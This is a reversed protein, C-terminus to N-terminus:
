EMRLLVLSTREILILQQSLMQRWDGRRRKQRMFHRRLGRCRASRRRGGALSRTCRVKSSQRERIESDNWCCPFPASRLCCIASMDRQWRATEEDPHKTMRAIEERARVARDDFAVVGFLADLRALANSHGLMPILATLAEDTQIYQLCRIADVVHTDDRLLKRLTPVATAGNTGIVYFGTLAHSHLRNVRRLDIVLAKPTEPLLREVVKNWRPAIRERWGPEARLKSLLVPVAAAGIEKIAQEAPGEVSFDTRLDSIELWHSLSHGHAFPERPGRFAVTAFVVVVIGLVLLKLFRHKSRARVSLARDNV